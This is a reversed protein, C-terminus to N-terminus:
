IMAGRPPWTRFEVEEIEESANILYHNGDADCAAWVGRVVPDAICVFETAARGTENALHRAAATRTHIM